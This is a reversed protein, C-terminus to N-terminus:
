EQMIRYIALQLEQSISIEHLGKLSYTVELKNTLNISDVLEHTLEILGVEALSPITLHKSIRRIENICDQLYASSRHVLEKHETVSEAIIENFLKITTLVQNVNDHLERGLKMRDNEQAQIVAAIIRKQQREKEIDLQAQLKKKETIDNIIAVIKDVEGRKDLLLQFQIAAWLPEQQRTYGMIKLAIAQGLQLKEITQQLLEQDTGPGALLESPRKGVAEEFTYGTTHVFADNVWTIRRQADMVVISNITERAILSLMEMEKEQKRKQTVNKGTAYLLSNHPDWRGAWSMAVVSGNKHYYENECDSIVGHSILQDWTHYSFLKDSDVMLDFCSRDILEHPDYGWTEKCAQNIYVFRHDQDIVCVVEKISDLLKEFLIFPPKREMILHCQDYTHELNICITPFLM